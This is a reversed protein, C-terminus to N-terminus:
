HYLAPEEIVPESALYAHHAIRDQGPYREIVKEWTIEEGDDDEVDVDREMDDLYPKNLSFEYAADADKAIVFDTYLIEVTVDFKRLVPHPTLECWKKFDPDQLDKDNAESNSTM